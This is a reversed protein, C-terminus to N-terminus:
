NRSATAKAEEVEKVHTQFIEVAKAALLDQEQEPVDGDTAVLAVGDTVFVEATRGDAHNVFCVHITM